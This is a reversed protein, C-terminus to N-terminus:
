YKEQPLKLIVTFTNTDNCTTLSARNGYLTKIRKIINNLGTNTGTIKSKFAPNSPNVLKILLNGEDLLTYLMIKKHEQAQWTFKIANEILPQLILSPVLYCLTEEPLYQEYYTPLVKDNIVRLM